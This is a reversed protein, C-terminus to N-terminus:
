QLAEEIKGMAAEIDMARASMASFKDDDLLDFINLKAESLLQEIQESIHELQITLQREEKLVKSIEILTKERADSNTIPVALQM